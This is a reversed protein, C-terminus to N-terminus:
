PDACYTTDAKLRVEHQMRAKELAAPPETDMRLM